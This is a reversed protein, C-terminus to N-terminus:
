IIFTTIISVSAICISFRVRINPFRTATSPISRVMLRPSSNARRPGFPAPFVVVMLISQQKSLGVPPEALYGKGGGGSRVDASDALIARLQAEIHAPEVPNSPSGGGGERALVEVRYFRPGRQVVIHTSAGDLTVLEDQGRRPLRTSRFLRKYQSM